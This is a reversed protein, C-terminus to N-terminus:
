LHNATKLAEEVDFEPMTRLWNICIGAIQILEVQPSHEHKGKIADALEGVEACLTLYKRENSASNDRMRYLFHDANDIVADTINM